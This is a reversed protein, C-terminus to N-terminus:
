EGDGDGEGVAEVGDGGTEGDGDGDGDADGGGDGDGDGDGIAVVAAIATAMARAMEKVLVERKRGLRRMEVEIVWDGAMEETRGRRLGGVMSEWATRTMPAPGVRM